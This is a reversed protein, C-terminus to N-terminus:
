GEGRGGKTCCLKSCWGMWESAGGSRFVVWTVRCGDGFLRKLLFRRDELRGIDSETVDEPLGSFWVGAFLWVIGGAFVGM